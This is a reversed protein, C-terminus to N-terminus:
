PTELGTTETDLLITRDAHLSAQAWARTENRQGIWDKEFRCVQCLGDVIHPDDLESGECGCMQCKENTQLLLTTYKSISPPFHVAKREDYLWLWHPDLRQYYCGDPASPIQLGFRSLEGATKLHAPWAGFEYRIVGPCRSRKKKDWSWQCVKCQWCNQRRQFQHHTM